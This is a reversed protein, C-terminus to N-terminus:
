KRVKGAGREYTIQKYRVFSQPATSHPEIHTILESHTVHVCVCVCVHEVLVFTSTVYAFLGRRISYVWAAFIPAPLRADVAGVAM